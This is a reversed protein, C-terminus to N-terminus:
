IWIDQRRKPDITADTAFDLFRLFEQVHEQNHEVWQHILGRLIQSDGM